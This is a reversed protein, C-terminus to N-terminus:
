GAKLIEHPLFASGPNAKLRYLAERFYVRLNVSILQCTEVLSYLVAAAKMGHKSKSRYRNKRGLTPARLARETANNDLWVEPHDVFKTLRRWHNVMYRIARELSSGRVPRAKLMWKKMADLTCEVWERRVSEPVKYNAGLM